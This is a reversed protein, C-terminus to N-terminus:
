KKSCLRSEASDESCSKTSTRSSSSIDDDEEFGLEDFEELVDDEVSRLLDESSNSSVALKIVDQVGGM